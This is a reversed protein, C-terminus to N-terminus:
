IGLILGCIERCCFLCISGPFIYIEWLYTLTPVPLGFMIIRNQFYSNRKPSYMFPFWVNVLHTGFKVPIICYRPFYMYYRPQTFIFFLGSATIHLDDKGSGGRRWVLRTLVAPALPAVNRWWGWWVCPILAAWVCVVHSASVFPTPGVASSWGWLPSRSPRLSTALASRSTCEFRRSSHPSIKFFLNGELM